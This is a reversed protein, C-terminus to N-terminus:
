TSPVISLSGTQEDVTVIYDDTDNDANVIGCYFKFKTPDLQGIVAIDTFTRDTVSACFKDIEMEGTENIFILLSRDATYEAGKAEKNQYVAIAADTLTKGEANRSNVYVQEIPIGSVQNGEQLVITGDGMDHDTGIKWDKNTRYSVVKSLIILGLIERPRLRSDSIDRGADIWNEPNRIVVPLLLKMFAVSPEIAVIQKRVGLRKGPPM